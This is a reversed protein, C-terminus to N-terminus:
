RVVLDVDFPIEQLRPHNSKVLVHAPNPRVRTMPMAGPAIEFVFRVGQQDGKSNEPDQEVHVKLIDIDSSCSVAQFKDKLGYVLAPLTVKRGESQRVTGLILISKESSWLAKGIPPLFLIPGSRTATVDVEITKNGELTTHIKLRGRFRGKPIGRDVVVDFNYGQQMGTLRRSFEHTELKKYSVKIHPDSTEVSTIKFHPDLASALTGTAHGDQIDTIHGANWGRDPIVAFKEVVKGYVKFQFEPLDPDNTWITAHQAFNEELKKPTWTLKIEASGNPPIGSSPIEAITCKCTTPGKGLVLAAQGKNEIRFTHSKEENIGMVGFDYVREGTVAKPFPPKDAVAPRKPLDPDEKKAEAAKEREAKAKAEDMMKQGLEPRTLVPQYPTVWPAYRAAWIAGVLAAVGTVVALIVGIPRM